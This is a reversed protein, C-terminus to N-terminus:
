RLDQEFLLVSMGPFLERLNRGNLAWTVKPGGALTFTINAKLPRKPDASNYGEVLWRFNEPVTVTGRNNEAQLARVIRRDGEELAIEIRKVRIDNPDYVEYYGTEGAEAPIEWPLATFDFTIVDALESPNNVPIDGSQVPIEDAGKLFDKGDLTTIEKALGFTASDLGNPDDTLMGALEFAGYIVPADFKDRWGKGPKWTFTQEGYSNGKNRLTITLLIKEITVGDLQGVFPMALYAKKWGTPDMEVIVHRARVEPPYDILTIFGEAALAMGSEARKALVSAMEELRGLALEERKNAPRFSPQGVMQSTTTTSTSGSTSSTTRTTTRTKEVKEDKKSAAEFAEMRLMKMARERDERASPQKRRSRNGTDTAGSTKTAAAATDGLTQYNYSLGYKFGTRAELLTEIMDVDLPNDLDVTFTVNRSAFRSAVGAAMSAVAEIPGKRPHQLTLKMGSSPLPSITPTKGRTARKPIKWRLKNITEDSPGVDLAFRLIAGQDLQRPNKKNPRQYKIMMFDPEPQRDVMTEVLTPRLTACYWQTPNIVSQFLVFIQEKGDVTVKINKLITQSNLIPDAWVAGGVALLVILLVTVYRVM